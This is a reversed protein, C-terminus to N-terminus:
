PMGRKKSGGCVAINTNSKVLTYRRSVLPRREVANDLVEHQLPSVKHLPIAGAPHADVPLLEGVLVEVKTVCTQWLLFIHRLVSLVYAPVAQHQM